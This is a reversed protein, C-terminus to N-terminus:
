GGRQRRGSRPVLDGIPRMSSDPTAPSELQSKYRRWCDPCRWEITFEGTSEERRSVRWGYRMSILSTSEPDAENNSRPPAIGCDCCQRQSKNQM